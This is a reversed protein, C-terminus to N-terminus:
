TPGGKGQDSHIPGASENLTYEVETIALTILHCLLTHSSNLKSLNQLMSRTYELVNGEAGAMNTNAAGSPESRPAGQEDLGM